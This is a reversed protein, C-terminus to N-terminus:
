GEPKKRGALAAVKEECDQLPLFYIDFQICRQSGRRGVSVLVPAYFATGTHNPMWEWSLAPLKSCAAESLQSCVSDLWTAESQPHSEKWAKSLSDLTMGKCEAIGFIQECAKDDQGVRCKTLLIDRSEKQRKEPPLNAIQTADDLSMELRLLPWAAWDAEDEHDLPLLPQLKAFLDTAADEVEQSRPTFETLPKMLSPFFDPDTLLQNTFKQIDILNHANVHVQDTFLAPTQRGCQFVVIRAEPSEPDSAIGVEWMCYNWDQSPSTYVLIVVGAEWVAQRIERSLSRGAKPGETFFGSSQYIRVRGGTRGM